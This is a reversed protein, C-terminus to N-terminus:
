IHVTNRLQQMLRPQYRVARETRIDTSGVADDDHQGNRDVSDTTETLGRICLSDSVESDVGHINFRDFCQKQVFNGGIIDM